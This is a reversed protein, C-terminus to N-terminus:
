LNIFGLNESIEQGATTVSKIYKPFHNDNMRQRPGVISVSAIVEGTYDKIPAAISVIEEHMENVCISFGQLRIEKLEQILQNRDTISNPGCKPLGNDLIKHIVDMRQFALLIKGSSTCTAPNNKGIYSMLQIPHKCDIKHLYIVSSDELVSIHATEDVDSVLKQLSPKAERFIEMHSTIVGSLRLVSLGIQYYRGSKELFGESVLEKVLRSVTSKNLSLAKSIESIGWIPKEKSFLRLISLGSYVSKMIGEITM